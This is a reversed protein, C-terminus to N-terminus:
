GKALGRLLEVAWAKGDDGTHKDNVDYIYRLFDDIHDDTWGLARALHEHEDMTNVFWRSGPHREEYARCLALSLCHTVIMSEDGRAQETGSFFGDREILDAAGDFLSLDM